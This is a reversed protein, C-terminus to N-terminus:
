SGREQRHRRFATTVKWLKRYEVWDTDLVNRYNTAIENTPSLSRRKQRLTAANKIDKNRLCYIIPNLLPTGMTYLLSIAKSVNFSSNNPTMYITILVGYYTCVVILHSSCTSFSKLKGSSTSIRSIMLSISIYTYLIFSLPLIVLPITLVIDTIKVITSDSCSLQLLPIFDCFYHDIIHPGCFVLQYIQFAILLSVTCSLIWSSIAFHLCLRNDMISTYHLPKCIALYRDYSMVTLFLCEAAASLCHFQLQTICGTLSITSELHLIVRLMNPTINTTVLIDSVSLHSLFIYMPTNLSPVTAVLSIILFNLALTLLYILLFIIFLITNFIPPNQFGLLLFKTVMTQNMEMIVRRS